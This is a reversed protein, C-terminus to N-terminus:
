GHGFRCTGPQCPGVIQGPTSRHGSVTRLERRVARAEEYDGQRFALSGYCASVWAIGVKSNLQRQIMMAEDLRARPAVFDGEWYAHQALGVQSDAIGALHGLERALALSEELLVRPRDADRHDTSLWGLVDAQGVKDGLARYLDLSQELLPCASVVDGQLVSIEGLVMLSFAEGFRSVQERSLALSTEAVSRAQTLDGESMLLSARTAMGIARAERHSLADPRDLLQALWESGERSHGHAYWYWGLANALRLGAHVDSELAWELASRVNDLERDLRILWSAQDPGTLAPEAQAALNAFYELHRDRVARSEGSDLLKELAYHRITELLRYRSLEGRPGEVMVLSKNLLQTLLDLVDYVIPPGADHPSQGGAVAEAADLTWGGAFVSLRGLLARENESLLSYSWDLTARLTQQRPLATRSGGTLLRLRDDLRATIQEPNLTKVRAAALEIALPIGDLRHCIGAVFPANDSRLSFGPSITAARDVFLRVAEYELLADVSLSQRPDPASMSPAQFVAEGAIGLAERTSTLVRLDPCARLLLEALWASPEVLHECNDLILLTHKRRLGDALTSLIPRGPEELLGLTAAVTQPVLSPDALRELEVFWVGDPYRAKLEHALQLALRTKGCGGVGTLTVLRFTALLRKV